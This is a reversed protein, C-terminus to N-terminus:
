RYFQGRISDSKTIECSMTVKGTLGVMDWICKGSAEFYKPIEVEETKPINTMWTEEASYVFGQTKPNVGLPCHPARSMLIFYGLGGEKM